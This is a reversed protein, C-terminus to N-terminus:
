NSWVAKEWETIRINYCEKTYLFCMFLTLLVLWLCSLIKIVSFESMLFFNYLFDVLRLIYVFCFIYFMYVYSYMVCIYYLFKKLVMYYLKFQIDHNCIMIVHLIVWINYMPQAHMLFSRYTTVISHGFESAPGAMMSINPVNADRFRETRSVATLERWLMSVNLGIYLVPLINLVINRQIKTTVHIIFESAVHSDHTKVSPIHIVNGEQPQRVILCRRLLCLELLKKLRTAM